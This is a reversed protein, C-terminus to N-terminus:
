FLPLEARHELVSSARGRHELVSSARGRHELVCTTLPSQDATLSFLVIYSLVSVSIIVLMVFTVFVRYM